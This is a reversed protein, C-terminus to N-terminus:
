ILLGQASEKDLSLQYRLADLDAMRRESRLYAVFEVRIHQNYISKDFDFIHVEVTRAHDEGNVTPRTGINLMGCREINDELYVRVAYVGNAPIIKEPFDCSINATPFGIRRGLQHGAVVHGEIEYDYSLLLAADHVRGEGLLRRIISSSVKHGEPMCAGSRSITVGLEKGYRCYDDYTENINHGFRHDYGVVLHRINYNDHLFAIFDHASMQAMQPTFDLLICYDTGTAALRRLREKTSTILQMAKGSLVTKPHNKFTIIGSTLGNQIAIKLVDAILSKHGSHVGDFFGITAVMGKSSLHRSNDLIQMAKSLVFCFYM